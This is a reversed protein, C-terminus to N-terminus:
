CRNVARISSQHSINGKKFMEGGGGNKGTSDVQPWWFLGNGSLFPYAFITMHSTGLDNDNFGRKVIWTLIALLGKLSVLRM